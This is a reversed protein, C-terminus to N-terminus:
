MADRGEYFLKIPCWNGLNSPASSDSGVVHKLRTRLCLKQVPVDRLRRLTWFLLPARDVVHQWPTEAEDWARM